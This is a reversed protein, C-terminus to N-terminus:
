RRFPGSSKSLSPWSSSVSPFSPSLRFPLDENHRLIMLCEVTRVWGAKSKTPQECISWLKRKFDGWGSKPFQPEEPGANEENHDNAQGHDCNPDKSPEEEDYLPPLLDDLRWFRLEDILMWESVTPPCHLNGTSCYNLVVEFALPSRQLFFEKSSLLHVIDLEEFLNVIDEPLEPHTDVSALKALLSEPYRTAISKLVQFATGSFSPVTHAGNGECVFKGSINLRMFMTDSPDSSDIRELRRRNAPRKSRAWNRTVEGQWQSFRRGNELRLPHEDLSSARQLHQQHVNSAINALM